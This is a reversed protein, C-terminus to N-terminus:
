RTGNSRSSRSDRAPPTQQPIFADIPHGHGIGADPPTPRRVPKLSWLDLREGGFIRVIPNRLDSWADGIQEDNESGRTSLTLLLLGVVVLAAEIGVKASSQNPSAIVTGKSM